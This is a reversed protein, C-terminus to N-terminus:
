QGQNATIAGATPAAVAGRKLLEILLPDIDGVPVGQTLYKQMGPRNLLAQALKPGALSAAGFALANGDGTFAGATSAGGTLLAQAMLRQATGSDPVQDKIFQKGIKGLDAMDGGEYAMNPNAARVRELLLGPPVRDGAAKGALPQITKMNKYEKNAKFFAEMKEPAINVSAADDVANKAMALYHKVDGDASKMASRWKQYAVGDVAGDDGIKAFIDEIKNAVIKAKDPPLNRAAEQNVLSLRPTFDAAPIKEGAFIRQYEGSLRAKNAAMVGEGMNDAEAGMQRTVARTFQEGQANRKTAEKGATLPMRELVSDVTQLFKNGTAQSPALDIGQEAAKRALEQQAPTLSNAPGQALRGVLKAAGAGAAGAGAGVATNVGRSEGSAVPQAGALLGSALAAGKLTAGGPAAVSQAITGALNGGMGGATDMLSADRKQAEDVEEQSVMGLMQGVGRGTDVFSKGAGELAAQYWPIGDMPNIPKEAAKPKANPIIDREIAQQIQEPSMGDPFNVAGVGPVNVRPM